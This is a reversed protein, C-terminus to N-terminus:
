TLLQGAGKQAYAHHQMTLGGTCAMGGAGGRGGVLEVAEQLLETSIGAWPQEGPVPPPPPWAAQGALGARSGVGEADAAAAAAAKAVAEAWCRRDRDSTVGFLFATAYPGNGSGLARYPIPQQRAVLRRNHDVDGAAPM